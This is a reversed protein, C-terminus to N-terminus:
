TENFNSSAELGLGVGFSEELLILEEMSIELTKLIRLEQAVVCKTKSSSQRNFLKVASISCQCAPYHDYFM